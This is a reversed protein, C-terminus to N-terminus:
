GHAVGQQATAPTGVQHVQCAEEEDSHPTSRLYGWDVDARIEECLVARGSERELRICTEASIKQGASIAKRLYGVTTQSRAAFAAQEAPSLGNLYTLLKKM